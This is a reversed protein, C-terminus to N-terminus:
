IEVIKKLSFSLADCSVLHHGVGNVTGTLGLRIATGHLHGYVYHMIGPEALAALFDRGADSQYYMPYHTLLVFQSFGQRRAATLSLLIRGMERQYINADQDSFGPDAPNLWGRSGCVAIHGVPVFSNHIPLISAPLNHKLKALSQWWYDHNGRIMIKRGPLQHIAALDPLAEAFDMAWSIDGALLVVDDEKVLARWSACIKDWYGVWQAGFIDKPKKPPFGSLHLDGIAFIAAM